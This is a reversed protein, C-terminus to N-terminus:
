ENNQNYEDIEKSLVNIRGQRSDCEKSHENEQDMNEIIQNACDSDESERYKRFLDTERHDVWRDNYNPYEARNKKVYELGEEAKHLEDQKILNLFEATDKPKYIEKKELDLTEISM